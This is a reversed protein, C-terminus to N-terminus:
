RAVAPGPGARAGRRPAVGAVAGEDAATGVHRPAPGHAAGPDRAVAEVRGRQRPTGPHRRRPGVPGVGVRESRASRGSWWCSRTPRASGSRGSASPTSRPRKARRASSTDGRRLDGVQGAHVVGLGELERYARAVTNPALGLETALARVTPLKDGPALAGSDVQETIRSKLQDYPPERLGADVHLRMAGGEAGVLGLGPGDGAVRKTEVWGAPGVRPLPHRRGPEAHIETLVQHTAYPLALAYIQAGGAVM